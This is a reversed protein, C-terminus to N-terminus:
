NMNAKRIASRDVNNVYCSQQIFMIIYEVNEKGYMQYWM